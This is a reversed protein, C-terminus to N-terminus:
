VKKASKGQMKELIDDMEKIKEAKRLSARLLILNKERLEDIIRDRRLIEKHLLEIESNKLKDSDKKEKKRKDQSKL